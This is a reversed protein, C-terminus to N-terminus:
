GSVTVAATATENKYPTASYTLHLRIDKLVKAKLAAAPFPVRIVQFTAQGPMLGESGDPFFTFDSTGQTKALPIPAGQANVYEVTGSQLRIAQDSTTNRLRLTARLNPSEALKGTKTDVRTIVTLGELRGALSATTVPVSAPTLTTSKLHTSPVSAAGHAGQQSWIALVLLAVGLVWWMSVDQQRRPNM